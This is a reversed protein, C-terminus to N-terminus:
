RVSVAWRRRVSSGERWRLVMISVQVSFGPYGMSLTVRRSEPFKERAWDLNRASSTESSSQSSSLLHALSNYWVQIYCLYWPLNHMFNWMNTTATRTRTLWLVTHIIQTSCLTIIQGEALCSSKSSGNFFTINWMKPVFVTKNVTRKKKNRKEKRRKGEQLLITLLFRNIFVNNKPSIGKGARRDERNSKQGWIQRLDKRLHSWRRRPLGAPQLLSRTPAQM